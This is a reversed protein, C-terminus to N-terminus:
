DQIVNAKKLAMIVRMRNISENDTKKWRISHERAMKYLEKSELDGYKAKKKTETTKPKYTNPFYYNHLSMAVRMRHISPNDTAKWELHLSKAIYEMTATDLHKIFDKLEDLNEFEPMNEAMEEPTLEVEDAKKVPYGKEFEDDDIEHVHSDHVEEVGGDAELADLEEEQELDIVSVVDSYKGSEIDKMTVKSVNIARAVESLSQYVEEGVQYALKSM